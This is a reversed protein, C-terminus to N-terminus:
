LGYKSAIYTDLEARQAASLVGPYLLSEAIRGAYAFIGGIADNGLFNLNRAVNSPVSLAGGAVDVHNLEVRGVGASTIEFVMLAPTFVVTGPASSVLFLGPDLGLIGYADPSTDTVFSWASSVLNDSFGYNAQPVSGGVGAQVVQVLTLGNLFDDFGVAPMDFYASHGPDFLACGLGLLGAAEYLPRAAGVQTCDLGNGSTDPWVSIPNGDGVSMLSDNNLWQRMGAPPHPPPPPPAAAEFAVLLNRLRKDLGSDTYSM